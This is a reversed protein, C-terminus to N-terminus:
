RAGACMPQSHLNVGRWFMPGTRYCEMPSLSEHCRVQDAPTRGAQWRQDGQTENHVASGYIRALQLRDSVNPRTEVSMM